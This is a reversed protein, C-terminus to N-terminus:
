ATVFLKSYIDGQVNSKQMLNHLSSPTAISKLDAAPASDLGTVNAILIM